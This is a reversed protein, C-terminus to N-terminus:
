NNEQTQPTITEVIYAPLQKRYKLALRYGLQAQAPTLTQVSALSHGVKVDYRNFGVGNQEAAHDLDNGALIRLASHIAELMAVTLTRATIKSQAPTAAPFSDDAEDPLAESELTYPADLAQDIVAQKRVIVKAMRADLSNDFVLHEILVSNTQGIRHARDEAQSVAAPVWDLEAFVVHSSATLTLGVGAAQINGVFVRCNPDTQLADVAAQRNAMSTDGTISVPNYDALEKVLIKVVERHHAFVLLKYDPDTGELIDLCHAAVKPAKAVAVEARVKAMSSFSVAIADRLKFVAAQYAPEDNAAKALDREARLEQLRAQHQEYERIEKAVVSSAGNSPLVVVSRRKPPLEKLVDAKRRRVMITSRLKDQLEDLHSNGSFDWGHTGQQAACYRKAFSMFNSWNDPDLWELIPYIEVPKNPIPTGTLAMRRASNIGPHKIRNIVKNTEDDKVVETWGLLARSRLTSPNKLYHAEDCIVLDWDFDEFNIKHIVDYNTIVIHTEPVGTKTDAIAITRPIVLWKTLERLWNLKLSAPCIILVQNIEPHVNLYGIAQITNHTVVFNDTVYLHDPADVAICQAEQQGIFDVSKIARSVPYKTRPTHDNLKRILRFPALGAPLRVSGRYAVRHTTKKQRYNFTGGLSQVIHQVDKALQESVTVYEITCTGPQVYGDTDLLGQLIALRDAISSWKYIDPIFKTHSHTGMLELKKLHQVMPNKAGKIGSIVYDCGQAHRLNTTHDALLYCAQAIEEDKTSIRVSTQSIGGDGLLVGLLYPDVPLFQPTFEVPAVMPIYHKLNGAADALDRKITKLPLVQYPTGRQKRTASNVAWLHDDCCDVTSGDTFTVRYIDKAGQPYVGTITCPQGTSGIVQMGVHAEAMTIWGTPTLLKSHMPQAKGLGMDDGILVGPKGTAYAIGARQYPLYDLGEPAPIQIDLAAARSLELNRTRENATSELMARVEPTAYRILKSAVAKDTTAWSKEVIRHWIFNADKATGRENFTCNFVFAQKTHNYTLQM